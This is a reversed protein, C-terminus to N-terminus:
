VNKKRWSPQETLHLTEFALARVVNDYFQFSTISSPQWNAVRWRLWAVMEEYNPLPDGSGCLDSKIDVCVELVSYDYLNFVSM